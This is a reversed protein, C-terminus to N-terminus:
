LCDGLPQRPLLRYSHFPKSGVADAVSELDRLTADFSLDDVARDSLGCGRGDYRALFPPLEELTLM